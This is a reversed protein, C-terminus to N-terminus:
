FVFKISAHVICFQFSESAARAPGVRHRTSPLGRPTVSRQVTKASLWTNDDGDGQEETGRKRLGSVAKDRM